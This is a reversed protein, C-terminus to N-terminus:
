IYATKRCIAKYECYECPLKENKQGKAFARIDGCRMRQSISGVVDDLTNMLEDWGMPTYFYKASDATPTGDKKFKVPLYEPNMAEISIEDDLIMGRRERTKKLEASVLSEDNTSVKVDSPSTKVYIVGAPILKTRDTAGIRERFTQNKSDIISKLYLFMQLNEGKELDDPSFRKNGTKYDIVRVYINEGDKFTDVRDIQGYVSVAGEPYEFRVPEPNEEGGRRINLEFFEPAFRSASLEDCIDEVVPLTARYVRELMIKTEKSSSSLSYLEDMYKKASSYTIEELKDHTLESIEKNERKLESFFNELIAHVFSGIGSHGVEYPASDSLSLNYKCFYNLPCKVFSDIRTQTLALEGRYISSLAEEGLTMDDNTINRDSAPYPAFGCVSLASEVAARQADGLEGILEGAHIPSFIREKLPLEAIKIPKIAKRSIDSFRSIVESKALTSFDTGCVSYLLTLSEEAFSVARSFFFLERASRLDLDATINIGHSSLTAKDKETFYSEDKPSKPFKGANVGLMYIHRKGYLRLMEAGGVTVEDIVSPIRGIGVSRFLIKLQSLFVDKTVTMDGLTRVVTDLADAIIKWLSIGGQIKSQRHELKEPIKMELLFEFLLEAHEKVTHTGSIRKGFSILPRLVTEKTQNIRELEADCEERKRLTYGDPNMNWLEGSSFARAGLQWREVYMEFEDAADRDIDCFGCKMYSIVDERRLTDSASYASYIFKVAEYESADHTHSTFYPINSKELAVDLVGIYEDPSRSIIAFDSYSEGAMVRRKIDSCIFDCEDFPTHAEFIRVSDSKQLSDNDIEGDTRWMLRMIENLITPRKSDYGIDRIQKKQIGYKNAIAFIRSRTHRIESFEFGDYEYRPLPLHLNIESKKMLEGIIKYQPETFSTFGEIFFVTDSFHEPNKNLADACRILADEREGFTKELINGFLSSIMTIDSIKGKLRAGIDACESLEALEVADIAGSNLEGLASLAKKVLGDNVDSRGRTMDLMPSLETLTRWMILSRAASDAHKQSVGGLSRFVSDSLRTFNTVEFFLPADEPLELAMEAEATVTQQEPVILYSRRKGRILETIAEKMKEHPVTSFGCENIILM